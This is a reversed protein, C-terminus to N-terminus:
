NVPTFGKGNWIGVKGAENKYTTGIKLEKKNEPVPPIVPPAKQFNMLEDIRNNNERLEQQLAANDKMNGTSSNEKMMAIIAANKDKIAQMQVTKSKLAGLEDTAMAIQEAHTKGIYSSDNNKLRKEIYAEPSLNRYLANQAEEFKQRNGERSTLGAETMQTRANQAKNTEIMELYRAQMEAQKSAANRAIEAAKNIRESREKQADAFSKGVDQGNKIKEERNRQDVEDMVKLQNWLFNENEAQHHRQLQTYVDAGGGPGHAMGRVVSILDSFKNSEENKRHEAELKELHKLAMSGAPSDLGFEKNIARVNDIHEQLKVPKETEKDFNAIAAADQKAYPNNFAAIGSTDTSPTYYGGVPAKLGPSPPQSPAQLDLPKNQINKNTQTIPNNETSSTFPNTVTNAPANTQAPPTQAPPTQPTPTQPTSTTQSPGPAADFANQMKALMDQSYKPVPAGAQAGYGQEFVPNVPAVDPDPVSSGNTGDFGLIGGHSFKYMHDPVHHMLGGHAAAIPQASSYQGLESFSLDQSNSPPETGPRIQPRTAFQLSAYNQLPAAKGQDPPPVSPQQNQLVPAQISNQNIGQMLQMLQQMYQDQQQPNQTQGGSAFSAIGSAKQVPPAMEQPATQPPLMAMASGPPNQTIGAPPTPGQALKQLVTPMPQQQAQAQQQMTQDKNAVMAAALKTAPDPNNLDQRVKDPSQSKMINFLKDLSPMSIPTYNQMM